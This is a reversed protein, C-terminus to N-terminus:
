GEIKVRELGYTKMFKTIELKDLHSGSIDMVKLTRRMPSLSMAKIVCRFIKENNRSVAHYLKVLKCCLFGFCTLNSKRMKFCFGNAISVHCLKFLLTKAQTSSSLIKSFCPSSIRFQSLQIEETVNSLASSLGKTIRTFSIQDKGCDFIFFPLKFSIKHILLKEIIDLQSTSTCRLYIIDLVPLKIDCGCLEEIFKSVCSDQSEYNLRLTKDKDFDQRTNFCMQYLNELKKDNMSKCFENEQLSRQCTMVNKSEEKPISNRSPSEKKIQYNDKSHQMMKTDDIGVELLNKLQTLEKNEAQSSNIKRKSLNQNTNTYKEEILIEDDQSTLDEMKLIVGVSEESDSSHESDTPRKKKIIKGNLSGEPKVKFKSNCPKALKSLKSYFLLEFICNGGKESTGYRSDQINSRIEKARCKLKEFKLFQDKQIAFDAETKLKEVDKTMNRLSSDLNEIQTLLKYKNAKQNCSEVFMELVNVDNKFGATDPIPKCNCNAHFSNWCQHCLVTIHDSCFYERSNECGLCSCDFDTKIM